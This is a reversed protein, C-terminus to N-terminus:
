KITNSWYLEEIFFSIKIKKNLENKSIIFVINKLINRLIRIYM